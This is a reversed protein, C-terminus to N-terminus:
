LAGQKRFRRLIALGGLGSGLLLLTSPEPVTSAEIDLRAYDIALFDARPGGYANLRVNLLGSQLMTFFSPDLNFISTNPSFPTYITGDPTFVDDFAGIIEIGNLYLKDDYPAGGLGDGAGNDEMDLTTITLRASTIQANIPTYSHSWLFNFTPAFKDTLGDDFERAIDVLRVPTNASTNTGFNDMDGYLSTMTFANADIPLLVLAFLFCSKLLPSISRAVLGAKCRSKKEVPEEKKESFFKM